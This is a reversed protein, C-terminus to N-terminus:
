CYQFTCLDRGCGKSAKDLLCAFRSQVISNKELPKLDFLGKEDGVEIFVETLDSVDFEKFMQNPQM